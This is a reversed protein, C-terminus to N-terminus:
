RLHRANSLKVQFLKAGIVPPWTDMGFVALQITEFEKANILPKIITNVTIKGKTQM